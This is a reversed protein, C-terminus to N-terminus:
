YPWTKNGGTFFSLEDKLWEFMLDIFELAAVDAKEKNSWLIFRVGCVLEKHFKELTISEFNVEYSGDGCSVIIKDWDIEFEYDGVEHFGSM